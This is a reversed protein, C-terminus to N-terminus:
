KIASFFPSEDFFFNKAKRALLKQTLKHRIFLRKMRKNSMKVLGLFPLQLGYVSAIKQAMLSESEFDQMMKDGQVAMRLNLAKMGLQLSENHLHYHPTTM